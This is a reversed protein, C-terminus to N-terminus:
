APCVFGPIGAKAYILNLVRTFKRSDHGTVQPQRKGRIALAFDRINALHGSAGISLPNDAGGQAPRVPDESEVLRDEFPRKTKFYTLDDGTFACSGETGCILVRQPMGDYALTTATITGIAGSALRVIVAAVTEAEINRELGSRLEAHLVEEVDGALWMLRDIMHPSQNGLVGGDLAWTGRWADQDYYKQARYWPTECHVHVIRGFYGADIARKAKEPGSAFRQQYVGGLTVGAREAAAIAADARDLQIDLPKECLVHKGAGAVQITHAAHLGSPSTVTVADLDVAALMEDLSPLVLVGWKEAWAKRRGEHPEAGAVLQVLGEAELKKLCEAHLHSIGGCGCIGFRISKM